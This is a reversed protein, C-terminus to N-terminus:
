GGYTSWEDFSGNWRSSGIDTSGYGYLYIPIRMGIFCVAVACLLMELFIPFIAGAPKKLEMGDANQSQFKQYGPLSRSSDAGNYQVSYHAKNEIASDDGNYLTITEYPSQAM